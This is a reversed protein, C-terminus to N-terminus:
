HYVAASLYGVVESLDGTKDGSDSRHLVASNSSSFDRCAKMMAVIAGGGCAETKHSDLDNQLGDPEFRSIREAANADLQEAIRRSYFHSLDSSAIILSKENLLPTLRRSLENVFEKKQDGFVIPVISCNGIANSLFPLIVEVGHEARHGEVGSFIFDDNIGALENRMENNIEFDGLPTQYYDGSYISVGPFYERHSPSLIYVTEYPKNKIQHFAHAATLGSYVYGAHPSVIGRVNNYLPDSINEYFSNILENLESPDAPYFLGAVAPKRYYKM